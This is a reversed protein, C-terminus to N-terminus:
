RRAAEGRPRACCACGRSAHPSRAVIEDTRDTSADSAVVVELQEPPYDLELLNEVRRGIVDDEDHAPVILSPRPTQEDKRVARGRVRALAAAALPYGVHTWALGGLSGWFIAKVLM